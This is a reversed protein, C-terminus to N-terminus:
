WRGNCHPCSKAAFEENKIPKSCKPCLYPAVALVLLTVPFLAGLIGWVIALKNKRKALAYTLIGCLCCVMLIPFFIPDM